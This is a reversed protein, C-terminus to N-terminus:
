KANGVDSNNLNRTEKERFFRKSFDEFGMEGLGLIYMLEGTDSFDLRISPNYYEFAVKWITGFFPNESAIKAFTDDGGEVNLYENADRIKIYHTHKKTYALSSDTTQDENWKSHQQIM